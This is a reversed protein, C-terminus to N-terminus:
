AMNILILLALNLAFVKMAFFRLTNGSNPTSVTGSQISTTVTNSTDVANTSGSEAVSKGKESWIYTPNADADSKFGGAFDMCTMFRYSKHVNIAIGVVGFNSKLINRRHGRSSVGDDVMLQVLSEMGNSHGYAM